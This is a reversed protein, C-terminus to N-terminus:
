GATEARLSYFEGALLVILGYQKVIEMQVIKELDLVQTFHSGMPDSVFVGTDCGLFILQGLACSCNIKAQGPVPNYALTYIDFCSKREAVIRKQEEIADVWARRDASSNAYLVSTGGHKGIASIAFPFKTPENSSLPLKPAAAGRPSAVASSTKSGVSGSREAANNM